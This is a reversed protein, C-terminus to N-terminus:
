RLSSVIGALETYIHKFDQLLVEASKLFVEVGDRELLQRFPVSGLYARHKKVRYAQLNRLVESEHPEPQMAQELIWLGDCYVRLKRILVDSGWEEWHEHNFYSHLVYPKELFLGGQASIAKAALAIQTYANNLGGICELDLVSRNYIQRSLAWAMPAFASANIRTAEVRTTKPFSQSDIYVVKGTRADLTPLSGWIFGVPAGALARLNSMIYNLAGPLLADDDTLWMVYEGRARKTLDLINSLGGENRARQVFVVDVSSIKSFVLASPPRPSCNDGVIIEVSFRDDETLSDLEAAVSGICRALEEYRSFTPIILSLVISNTKNFHSPNRNM